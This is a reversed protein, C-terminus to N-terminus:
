AMRYLSYAESSATVNTFRLRWLSSGGNEEGTVANAEVVAYGVLTGGSGAAVTIPEDVTTTASNIIAFDIHDGVQCGACGAVALAATPMTWTAAGEPDEELIGTLIEAITITQAGTGIAAAPAPSSGMLALSTGSRLVNVGDASLVLHGTRNVTVRTQEDGSKAAWLEHDRFGLQASMTAAANSDVTLSTDSAIASVTFTENGVKLADGVALETLFATSSGTVTASAATTTLTGTIRNSLKAGLDGGAASALYDSLGGLSETPNIYGLSM